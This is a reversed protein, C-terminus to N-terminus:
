EDFNVKEVIESEVIRNGDKDVWYWKGNGAKVKYLVKILKKAPILPVTKPAGTGAWALGHAGNPGAHVQRSIAHWTTKGTRKDRGDYAPFGLPKPRIPAVESEQYHKLIAKTRRTIDPFVAKLASGPCPKENQFDDHKYEFGLGTVPNLPYKDWPIKAQDAWYAQLQAISEIAKDSVKTDYQGSVEIAFLAGNIAGVGYKEVLLDGMGEEGARQWKGSAWPAVRSNPDVWQIIEGDHDPGDIAGVGVGYHTLGTGPNRFWSDTGYLSGVMRHRVVGKRPGPQYPGADWGDGAKRVGPALIHRIFEPHPVKGFIITNVTVGQDPLNPFLKNGWEVVKQQYGPDCAWTCQKTGIDDFFEINLDDITRVAPTRSLTFIRMVKDLHDGDIDRIEKLPLPLNDPHFNKVRVYMEALHILAALRGPKGDQMISFPTPAGSKWIGIGAPNADNLWYTSRWPHGTMDGTEHASQAVLISPDLGLSPAIEFITKIYNQYDGQAGLLEANVIATQADGRPKSMLQDSIRMSM